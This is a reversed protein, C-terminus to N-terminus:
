RVPSDIHNSKRNSVKLTRKGKSKEAASSNKGAGQAINAEMGETHVKLFRSEGRKSGCHDPQVQRGLAANINKQLQKFV